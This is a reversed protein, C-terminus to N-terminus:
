LFHAYLVKAWNVHLVPAPSRHRGPSSRGGPARRSTQSAPSARSPGPAGPRHGGGKSATAELAPRPTGRTRPRGIPPPRKPHRRGRCPPPIVTRDRRRRAVAGPAARRDDRDHARGGPGPGHGDIQKYSRNHMRQSPRWLCSQVLRVLFPPRPISSRSPPHGVPSLPLLGRLAHHPAVNGVPRPGRRVV